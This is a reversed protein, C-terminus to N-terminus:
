HSCAAASNYMLNTSGGDEAGICTRQRMNADYAQSLTAPRFAAKLSKHLPHASQMRHGDVAM